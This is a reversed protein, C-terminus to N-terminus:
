QAPARGMYQWCYNIARVVFKRVELYSVRGHQSAVTGEDANFTALAHSITRSRRLLRALRQTGIEVNAMPDRLDVEGYESATARLQM